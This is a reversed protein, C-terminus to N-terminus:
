GKESYSSLYDHRSLDFNSGGILTQSINHTAQKSLNFHSPATQVPDLIGIGEYNAPKCPHSAENETILFRCLSPLFSSVIYLLNCLNLFTRLDLLLGKCFLGHQKYLSLSIMLLLKLNSNLQKHCQM